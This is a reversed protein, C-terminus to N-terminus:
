KWSICNYKIVYFDKWDEKCIIFMILQNLFQDANNLQTPPLWVGEEELIGPVSCINCNSGGLVMKEMVFQVIFLEVLRFLSM